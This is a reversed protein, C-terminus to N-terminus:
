SEVGGFLVRLVMTSEVPLDIAVNKSSFRTSTVKSWIAGTIRLAITAM